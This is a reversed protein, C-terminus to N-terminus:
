MSSRIVLWMKRRVQMKLYKGSRLGSEKIRRMGKGIM